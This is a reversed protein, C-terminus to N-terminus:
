SNQRQGVVFIDMIYYVHDTYQVARNISSDKSYENNEASNNV